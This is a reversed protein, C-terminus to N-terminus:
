AEAPETVSQDREFGEHQLTITEIAVANGNADLEPLAQYEAVWCRYVKYALVVTGQENLLRILMDKRFNKLSMAADGEPSYALDAWDEFTTDHTVGRELTIPDFDTSGPGKLFRSPASGERYLVTGTQRKLASVKSVGPVVKGDVVVQFKFSKYPDHRHVNVSFPPM